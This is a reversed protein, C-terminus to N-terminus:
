YDAMSVLVAQTNPQDKVNQLKTLTYGGTNVGHNTSVNQTM